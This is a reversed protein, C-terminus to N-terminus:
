VVWQEQRRQIPAKFHIMDISRELTKFCALAFQAFGYGGAKLVQRHQAFVVMVVGLLMTRQWQRAMFNVIPWRDTAVEKLTECQFNIHLEEDLLIQSCIAQLLPSQTARHLARYYVLSIIEATLLTTISQEFGLYRRMWRFVNDVPDNNLKRIGHVSMFKGLAMAHHQEEKIFWYIAREYSDDGSFDTQEKAYQMLHKGESHEGRQFQRISTKILRLEDITLEDDSHYEIHDFHDNHGEFYNAWNQYSM